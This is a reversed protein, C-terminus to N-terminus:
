FEVRIGVRIYTAMDGRQQEVGGEIFPIFFRKPQNYIKVNSDTINQTPLPKFWARYVTFGIAAFFFIWLGFVASKAVTKAKPIGVVMKKFDFKEEMVSAAM